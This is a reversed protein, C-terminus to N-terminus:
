RRPANPAYRIGTAAVTRDVELLAESDAQQDIYDGRVYVRWRPSFAYSWEVGYGLTALGRDLGTLPDNELPDRKTWTAAAGIAARPGVQWLLRGNVFDNISVGGTGQTLGVERGAGATLSLRAGLRRAIAIRGSETTPTDYPEYDGFDRVDTRTVGAAITVQLREPSGFTFGLLVEQTDYEGRAGEDFRAVRGRLGIATREALDTEWALEAGISSADELTETASSDADDDYTTGFTDAAVVWRHRESATLLGQIRAAWAETRVVGVDILANALGSEELSVRARERSDWAGTFNWTARPSQTFDLGTTFSHSANDFDSFEDYAEYAPTYALSWATRPTRATLGLRVSSRLAIDSESEDDGIRPDDLQVNDTWSASVDVIPEFRWEAARVDTATSGAALVLMGAVTSLTAFRQIM